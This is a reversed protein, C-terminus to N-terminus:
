AKGPQKIIPVSEELVGFYNPSEIYVGATADSVMEKLSELQAVQFDQSIKEIEDSDRSDAMTKKQPKSRAVEPLDGQGKFTLKQKRTFM